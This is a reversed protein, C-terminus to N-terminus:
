VGSKKRIKPLYDSLESYDAIGEMPGSKTVSYSGAATAYKLATEYSKNQNLSSLLMGAFIDGAGTPDIENVACAEALIHQEKTILEAGKAGKKLGIIEINNELMSQINKREDKQDTLFALEGESPLLISTQALIKQFLQKREGGSSLEKRINPDFSVKVNYQQCYDLAVEVARRVSSVSLSSGTIHFFGGQKFLEEQVQAEQIQGAAAYPIHYIFDRKGDSCYRVFAVGTTYDKDIRVARRNIHLSDLRQTINQGFDDDGVTGILATQSGSKAAQAIMIAPAGSPYPGHWLGKKDLPQGKKDAMIEVVLEGIAIINGM